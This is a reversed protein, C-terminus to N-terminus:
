VDRDDCEEKGAFRIAEMSHEPDTMSKLVDVTFYEVANQLSTTRHGYRCVKQMVGILEKKYEWTLARHQNAYVTCDVFPRFPEIIDCSLSGPNM